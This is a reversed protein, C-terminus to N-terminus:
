MGDTDVILANVANTSVTVPPSSQLIAIVFDETAEIADDNIIVDQLSSCVREGVKEAPITINILDGSFDQSSAAYCYFNKGQQEQLM